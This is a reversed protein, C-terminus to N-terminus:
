IGVAIGTVFETVYIKRFQWIGDYADVADVPNNDVGLVGFFGNFGELYNSFFQIFSGDMAAIDGKFPYLIIVADDKGSIGTGDVVSGFLLECVEDIIDVACLFAVLKNRDGENGTDFAYLSGCRIDSGIFDDGTEM